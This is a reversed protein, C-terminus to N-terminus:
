IGPFPVLDLAASTAATLSLVVGCILVTMLWLAKKPVAFFSPTAQLTHMSREKLLTSRPILPPAEDRGGGEERHACALSRRFEPARLCRRHLSPRSASRDHISSHKAPASVDRGSRSDSELRATADQTGEHTCPI